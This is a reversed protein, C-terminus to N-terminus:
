IKLRPRLKRHAKEFRSSSVGHLRMLGISPRFRSHLTSAPTPIAPRPWPPRPPSTHILLRLREHYHHILHRMVARLVARRIRMVLGIYRIPLPRPMPQAKPPSLVRPKPPIVKEPEPSPIHPRPLSFRRQEEEVHELKKERERGHTESQEPKEGTSQGLTPAPPNVM